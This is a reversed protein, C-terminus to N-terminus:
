VNSGDAWGAPPPRRDNAPNQPAALPKEACAAAHTAPAVGSAALPAGQQGQARTGATM